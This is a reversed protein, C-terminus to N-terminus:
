QRVRKAGVAQATAPRAGVIPVFTHVELREAAEDANEPKDLRVFPFRETSVLTYRAQMSRLWRDCAAEDFGASQCHYVVCRLPHENSVDDWALPQRRAHRPSYIRQNCLYQAMCNGLTDPVFDQRLDSAACAVEGGQAANFWFWKAFARQREDSLSRYPRVVDRAVCAVGIVACAVLAGSTVRFGHPRPLREILGALGIAALLCIAPALYINLRIAGGYPYMRLGSAILTVLFASLLLWVVTWQRRRCLLGIGLAVLAGTAASAGREGGVPYAMMDSTHAVLLWLPVKWPTALPPFNADWYGQMYDLQSHMQQRTSLWFTAAFSALVVANLAMWGVWHTLPSHHERWMLWALTLSVGGAVFAAPFSLGIAIPTLAILTALWVMRRSQWYHVTLTLLALAVLVDSGYPKAEASYRVLPYSISFMAVAMLLPLGQTLRRALHTFLLLSGIGSLFSVLRLALENFGALKTVAMQAALFLVPSVQGYVLPETLDAFGRDMVNFSLFAEDAWLPFRLMYRTCRLLVGLCIFCWLLRNQWAPSLESREITM